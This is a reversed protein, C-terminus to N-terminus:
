IGNDLVRRLADRLDASDPLASPRGDRRFYLRCTLAPHIPPPPPAIDEGAIRITPSGIFNERVAEDETVIQVTEIGTPDLGAEELASELMAKAKPHSPCGAWWLLEVHPAGM